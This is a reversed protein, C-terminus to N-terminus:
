DPRRSAVIERIRRAVTHIATDNAARLAAEDVLKGGIGVCAAGADLYAALNDVDVGGTPMLRIDPYVARVAKIFGPGGLQAAPFVKVIDAGANHAALIETPTAAGLMVPLRAARACDAVEPLMAPAVIFQADAALARRTDDETRVTGAGVIIEPQTALNRILDAADPITLTIEFLRFGEATLLGVARRALEPSGTRIVPVVKEHLLRELM